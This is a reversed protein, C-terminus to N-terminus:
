GFFGMVLSYVASEVPADAVRNVAFIGTLSLAAGTVAAVLAGFIADAPQALLGKVIRKVVMRAIGFALLTAVLVALAAMWQTAIYDKAIPYGFKVAAGSAAVGACFGLAGSFGGFLGLIAAVLTAVGMVYDATYFTM